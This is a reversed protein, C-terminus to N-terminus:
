IKDLTKFIPLSRAFELCYMQHNPKTPEFIYFGLTKSITPQFWPAKNEFKVYIITAIIILVQTIMRNPKLGEM